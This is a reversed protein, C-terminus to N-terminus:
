DVHDNRAGLAVSVVDRLNHRTASLLVDFTLSDAKTEVLARQRMECFVIVRCWRFAEDSVAVQCSQRWRLKVEVRHSATFTQDIRGDLSGISAVNRTSQHLREFVDHYLVIASDSRAAFDDNCEEITLVAHSALM